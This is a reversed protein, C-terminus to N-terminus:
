GNLWEVIGKDEHVTIKWGCYCFFNATKDHVNGAKTEEGCEPCKRHKRALEFADM